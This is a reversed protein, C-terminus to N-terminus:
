RSQRFSQEQGYSKGLTSLGVLKRVTSNAGDAGIVLRASITKNVISSDSGTVLTSFTVRAPGNNFMSSQQDISVDNIKANFISDITGHVDAKIADFIAAQLTSDEVCTGLSDLGTELSSFRVFGDSEWVQMSKFSKIRERLREWAGIHQLISISKPSLAYVRLDPASDFCSALSPPPSPEIICIKVTGEMRKNLLAAFASGVVGGGCVCIDYDWSDTRSNCFRKSSASYRIVKSLLKRITTM